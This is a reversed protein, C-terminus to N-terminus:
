AHRQRKLPSAIGRWAAAGVLFAAVLAMAARLAGSPVAHAALGLTAHYAAFAAPATFSLAVLLRMAPSRTREFSVRGLITVALAILGGAVVSTALSAGAHHIFVATSTGAFLPLAHITLKVLVWGMFLAVAILIPIAIIVLTRRSSLDGSASEVVVVACSTRCNYFFKVGPFPGEAMGFTLRHPGRNAPSLIM